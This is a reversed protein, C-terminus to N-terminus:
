VGNRNNLICGITESENQRGKVKWASRRAVGALDDITSLWESRHMDIQPFGVREINAHTWFLWCSDQYYHECEESCWCGDFRVTVPISITVETPM